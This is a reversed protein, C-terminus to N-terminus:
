CKLTMFNYNLSLYNLKFYKLRLQCRNWCFTYFEPTERLTKDPSAHAFRVCCRMTPAVDELIFHDYPKHCCFWISLAKILVQFASYLYWFKLKLSKIEVWWSLALYILLLQQKERSRRQYPKLRREQSRVLLKPVRMMKMMMEQHLNKSLPPLNVHALSPEQKMIRM